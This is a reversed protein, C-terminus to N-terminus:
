RSFVDYDGYNRCTERFQELHDLNIGMDYGRSGGFFIMVKNLSCVDCFGAGVIEINTEEPLETISLKSKENTKRVVEVGIEKAFADTIMTHLSGPSKSLPASSFRVLPVKDNESYVRQFQLIKYEGCEIPLIFPRINIPISM